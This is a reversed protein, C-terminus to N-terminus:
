GNWFPRSAQKVSLVKQLLLSATFPDVSKGRNDYGDTHTSEVVVMSAEGFDDDGVGRATFLDHRWDSFAFRQGFRRRAM